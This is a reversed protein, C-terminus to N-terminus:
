HHHATNFMVTMCQTHSKSECSRKQVQSRRDTHRAPVAKNRSVQKTSILWGQQQVSRADICAAKSDPSAEDRSANTPQTDLLCQKGVLRKMSISGGHTKFDAQNATVVDCVLDGGVHAYASTVTM